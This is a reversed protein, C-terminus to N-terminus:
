KGASGSREGTTANGIVLAPDSASVSGLDLGVGAGTTELIISACFITSVSCNTHLLFDVRTVPRTRLVPPAPTSYAHLLAPQYMSASDASLLTSRSYVLEGESALYVDSGRGERGEM